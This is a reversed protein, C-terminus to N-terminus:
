DDPIDRERANPRQMERASIEKMLDDPWEEDELHHALVRKM